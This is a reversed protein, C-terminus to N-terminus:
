KETKGTLDNKESASQPNEFDKNRKELTMEYFIKKFRAQEAEFAERERRLRIMEANLDEAEEEAAVSEEEERQLEQTRERQVDDSLLRKLVEAQREDTPDIALAPPEERTLFYHLTEVDCRATQLACIGTAKMKDPLGANEPVEGICATMMDSCYKFTGTPASFAAALVGLIVFAVLLAPLWVSLGGKMAQKMRRLYRKLREPAFFM